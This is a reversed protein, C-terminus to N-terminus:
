SVGYLGWDAYRSSRTSKEERRREGDTSWRGEAPGPNRATEAPQNMSSGAWSEPGLEFGGFQEYSYTQTSSSSQNFSHPGPLWGELEPPNMPPFRGVPTQMQGTYPDLLEGHAVLWADHTRFGTSDM